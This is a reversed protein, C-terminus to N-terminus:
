IPQVEDNQETGACTKWAWAGDKGLMKQFQSRIHQNVSCVSAPAAKAAPDGPPLHPGEKSPSGWVALSCEPSVMDQSQQILRLYIVGKPFSLTRSLWSKGALEMVEASFQETQTHRHTGWPQSVVPWPAPTGHPSSCVGFGHACGQELAPAPCEPCSQPKHQMVGAHLYHGSQCQPRWIQQFNLAFTSLLACFPLNPM